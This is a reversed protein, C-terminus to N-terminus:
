QSSLLTTDEDNTQNERCCLVFFFLNPYGHLLVPLRMAVIPGTCQVTNLYWESM